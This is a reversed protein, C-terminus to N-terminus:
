AGGAVARLVAILQAVSGRWSWYKEVRQRGAAGMEAAAKRHEVLWALRDAFVAEERPVLFGTVGDDVTETVGGEAVAVVPTGAAMAELPVLGLPEYHASHTAALAEAYLRALEADSVQHRLELDVGREAAMERLRREDRRRARDSVLILRPRIRAEVLAVARILFDLGKLPHLGGVAILYYAGERTRANPRFRELDVGLRVVEPQVGYVEAVRRASYVSNVAIADAARANRRDIRGLTHRILVRKLPGTIRPEYAARLPEQCYYLAPTRLWRLPYPAQTFQSPHVLVVDYGGRDIDAAAAQGSRRVERFLRAWGWLEAPSPLSTLARERDPPTTLPYTRVSEVLPALPMFGEEATSPAFLDIRHGERVLERVQAQVTRKAGGSPLDHYVAIRLPRTM